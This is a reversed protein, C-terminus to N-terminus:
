TIRRAVRTAHHHSFTSNIVTLTIGSINNIGGGNEASNGSFTSDTVTANGGGDNSIGAGDIQASNDLFTSNTVTLTGNNEIGGGDGETAANHSFTCNAVNLTGNTLIGGGFTASGKQITLDNVSLTAGPNVMMIQVPSMGNSGDIIITEGTGDITLSGGSGNAIAPLSSGLFITGSVSFVISDVGSGGICDTSGSQDKNNANTIADRLDCTGD